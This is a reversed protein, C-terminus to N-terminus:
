RRFRYPTHLHQVRHLTPTRRHTTECTPCEYVTHQLLQRRRKLESCLLTLDLRLPQHRLRYARQQCARACYRQQSATLAAGCMLCASSSIVTRSPERSPEVTM